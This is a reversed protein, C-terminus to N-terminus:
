EVRMKEALENALKLADDVDRKETMRLSGSKAKLTVYDWLCLAWSRDMIEADSIGFAEMIEVRVIQVDPCAMPTANEQDYVYYPGESHRKIYDAFDQIKQEFDIEVPARWGLRHRWTPRTLKRHWESFLKPTNGLNFLTLGDAYTLSCVLVSLALDHLTLPEGPTVFASRLRHLIVLHGLSLPRLRVGLITTPEPIAVSYFDSDM